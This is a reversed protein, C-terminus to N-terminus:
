WFCSHNKNIHYWYGNCLMFRSWKSIRRKYNRTIKKPGVCDEKWLTNIFCLEFHHSRPFTPLRFTKLFILIRARLVYTSRILAFYTHVITSKKIFLKSNRTRGFRDLGGLNKRLCLKFNHIRSLEQVDSFLFYFMHSDRNKLM